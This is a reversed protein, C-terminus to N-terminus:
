SPESPAIPRLVPLYVGRWGRPCLALDAPTFANGADPRLEITGAENAAFLAAHIAELADADGLEDRAARVVGAVLILGAITGQSAVARAVADRARESSRNM